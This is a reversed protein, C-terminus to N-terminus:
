SCFIGEKKIYFLSICQVSLIYLVCVSLNCFEEMLWNSYLNVSYCLHFTLSYLYLLVDIIRVLQSWRYNPYGFRSAVCHM